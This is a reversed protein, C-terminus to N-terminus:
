KTPLNLEAQHETMGEICCQMVADLEANMMTLGQKIVERNCKAAFRKDKFKKKLSKVSMGEMGEPRMLAYAHVIGTLEDVTFLCRAIDNQPEIEDTVLGYGHSIIIDIDEKDVGEPELLERVHRCHEEPFKEYDVDHLYGIAEWYDKDGDYLPAMAGMAASVAAAHTFLHEETVHKHLIEKARALTLKSM